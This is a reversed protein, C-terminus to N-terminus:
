EKEPLRGNQDLWGKEMGVYRYCEWLQLFFDWDIVALSGKRRSEHLALVPIKSEREALPWTERRLAYVNVRQTNKCEVYLDPHLTDSRTHRSAGGSLPARVTGLSHAVRREFAKWAKDAM